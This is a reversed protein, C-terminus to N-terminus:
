CNDLTYLAFVLKRNPVILDPIPNTIEDTEPNMVITKNAVFMMVNGSPLQFVSPYLCFPFCWELIDLKRPWQYTTNPKPPFYEYTPNNLQATYNGLDLYNRTGGVIMAKGNWMTTVTPYWRQSSMPIQDEWLGLGCSRDKCTKYTRIDQRGDTLYKIDSEAPMVREDGGVVLISGDPM